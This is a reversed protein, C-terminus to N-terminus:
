ELDLPDHATAKTTPQMADSALGAFLLAYAVVLGAITGLWTYQGITYQLDLPNVDTLRVHLYGLSLGVLPGCILALSALGRRARPHAQKGRRSRCIATVRFVVYASVSLGVFLVSLVIPMGGAFLLM